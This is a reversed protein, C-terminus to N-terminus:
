QVVGAVVNQKVTLLTENSFNKYIKAAKLAIGVKGGVYIPQIMTAGLSMRHDTGVKLRNKRLVGESDPFSIVFVQPKLNKEFDWLGNIQPLAASAAEIIQYDAKSTEKEANFIDKNKELAINIAQEISLQHYSDTQACLNQSTLSMFLIVLTFLMNEKM